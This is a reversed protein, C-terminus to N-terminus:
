ENSVLLSMNLKVCWTGKLFNVHINSGGRELGGPKLFFIRASRQKKEMFFAGSVGNM